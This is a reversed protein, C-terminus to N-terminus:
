GADMLRFSPLSICKLQRISAFARRAIFRLHSYFQFSLVSFDGNAFSSKGMVIINRTVCISVCHLNEFCSDGIETISFCNGGQFCQNRMFVFGHLTSLDRIETMCGSAQYIVVNFSGREHFRLPRFSWWSPSDDVSQPHGRLHLPGDGFHLHPEPHTKV